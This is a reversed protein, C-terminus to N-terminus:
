HTYASNTREWLLPQLATFLHMCGHTGEELVTELLKIQSFFGEKEIVCRLFFFPKFSYSITKVWIGFICLYIHSKPLNSHPIM